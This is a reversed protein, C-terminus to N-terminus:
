VCRLSYILSPLFLYKPAIYKERARFYLKVNLMVAFPSSFSMFHSDCFMPLWFFIYLIFGLPLPFEVWSSCISDTGKIVWRCFLHICIIHVCVCPFVCTCEYRPSNNTYGFYILSLHLLYILCWIGSYPKRTLLVNPWLM